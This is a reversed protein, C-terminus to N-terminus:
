FRAPKFWWGYLSIRTDDDLGFIYGTGARTSLVWEHERDLPYYYGGELRSRLYMEDGGLGAFDNSLRGFYGETPAVTSDRKDYTLTHGVSSEIFETDEALLLRSADSRNINSYSNQEIASHIHRRHVEARLRRRNRTM